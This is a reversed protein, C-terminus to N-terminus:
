SETTSRVAWAGYSWNIGSLSEVAFGDDGWSQHWSNCMRFSTLSVPEVAVLAHGRRGYVVPMGLLLATMFEEVTSIDYFEDIRFRLADDKAEPSLSANWRNIAGSDSNELRNYRPMVNQSAAGYQRLHSLNSDINSGQDRGGSTTRYVSWPNVIERPKGAFERGIQLAQCSAEAACSGVGDQDFVVPVCPRLSVLGLMDKWDGRPIVKIRDAFLPCIEGPKSARPLCGPKFTAPVAFRDISM